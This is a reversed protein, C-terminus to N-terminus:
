AGGPQRRTLPRLVMEEATEHRALLERLEDFSARRADGQASEVETLLRRIRAHQDLLLRLGDEQGTGGGSGTSTM